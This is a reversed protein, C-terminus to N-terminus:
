LKKKLIRVINMEFAGNRRGLHRSLKYLRDMDLAPSPPLAAPVYSKYAEGAVSRPVYSGLRTNNEAKGM